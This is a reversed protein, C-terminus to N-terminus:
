GGGGELRAEALAVRIREYLLPHILTAGEKSIDALLREMEALRTTAATLDAEAILARRRWHEWSDDWGAFFPGPDFGHECGQHRVCPTWGEGPTYGHPLCDPCVLDVIIKRAEDLEQRVAALQENLRANEVVVRIRERTRAISEPSVYYTMDGLRELEDLAAEEKLLFDALQKHIEECRREAEGDM